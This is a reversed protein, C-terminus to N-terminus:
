TRAWVIAKLLESLERQLQCPEGQGSHVKGTRTGRWGCLEKSVQARNKPMYMTIELVSKYSSMM